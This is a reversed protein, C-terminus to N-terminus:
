VCHNVAIDSYYYRDSDHITSESIGYLNINKMTNKIFKRYYAYKKNINRLQNINCGKRYVFVERYINLLQTESPSRIFKKIRVPTYEVDPTDEIDFWIKEIVYKILPIAFFVTKSYKRNCGCDYFYCTNGLALNFLMDDEICNFLNIWNNRELTTSPIRIIRPTIGRLKLEPLFELGNTLNIYHVDIM